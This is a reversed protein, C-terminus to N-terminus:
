FGLLLEPGMILDVDTYVWKKLQQNVIAKEHFHWSLELYTWDLRFFRIM